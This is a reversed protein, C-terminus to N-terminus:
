KKRGRKYDKIPNNQESDLEGNIKEKEKQISDRTKREDEMKEKMKEFNKKQREKTKQDKIGKLTDDLQQNREKEMREYHEQIKKYDRKIEKYEAELEGVRKEYEQKEKERQVEGLPNSDTVVNSETRTEQVEQEKKTEKRNEKEINDIQRTGQVIIPGNSEVNVNKIGEDKDNVEKAKREVRRNKEEIYRNNKKDSGILSLYFVGEAKKESFNNDGQIKNIVNNRKEEGYARDTDYMKGIKYAGIALNRDDKGIRVTYSKNDIQSTYTKSSDLTKEIDMMDSVKNIGNNMYTESYKELWEKAQNRTKKLKSMVTNINAESEKFKKRNKLARQKNYEEEGLTAREMQDSFGEVGFTERGRDVLNGGLRYGGTAAVGAYQMAKSPDGSAVGAALGISGIAVAGAAGGLMRAIQRVPRGNEIKRKFKRKMGDAYFGFGDAIGNIVRRRDEDKKAKELLRNRYNNILQRREEDNAYRLKNYNRGRANNLMEAWLDDDTRENSMPETDVAFGNRMDNPETGRDGIGLSITGASEGGTGELGEAAELSRLNDQISPQGGIKLDSIDDEGDSMSSRSGKGSKGGKPGHGLLANLGSFTMAAGVPGSLLGPTSAKEFNFMKRVIKEAQGIFGIAILSYIPNRASFKVTASVLITYLLLHMPQVLLNFMYEKFWYNFGQAKGDNAKDIPYTLAVLPAIMTLFAMYIVRRIYVFTFTITYIIMVAFLVVYGIFLISDDRYAGESASMRIMGMLNTRWEVYNSGDADTIYHVYMRNPLEQDGSVLHFGHERLVNKIKEDKDQIGAVYMTPNVSNLFKSLEEVAINAFYMIYHMTFLLVMGVLWDGLLQKYKAKESAASSIVIRIGIYVLVSMMGVTAIVRIARYTNFVFSKLNYAFTHREEVVDSKNGTVENETLNDAVNSPMGASSGANVKAMYYSGMDIIYLLYSNTDKIKAYYVEFQTSEPDKWYMNANGDEGELVEIDNETLGFQDLVDEDEFANETAQISNTYRINKIQDTSILRKVEDSRNDTSPEDTVIKYESEVMDGVDADFFNVSFIRHNDDNKFIEEPTIAYLPLIATNDEGWFDARYFASGAYGAAGLPILLWMGAISSFGVIKTGVRLVLGGIGMTAINGVAAIFVSSAWIFFATVAVMVVVTFFVRFFDKIMDGNMNVKILSKPQGLLVSHIVHMTGDGLTLILNFVPKLLEGGVVASVPEPKVFSISTILTFIIVMKKLASKLKLMKM